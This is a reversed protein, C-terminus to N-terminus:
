GQRRPPRHEWRWVPGDDPDEIAGVFAFGNKELVRTSANPARLTHARILRVRSDAAAYAVLAAAAETAYGQGEFSPVVAYAIEVMGDADPPGKFSANGIVQNSARHVLGFGFLWPDSGSAARLIDLFAPSVDASALFDRLGPASPVGFSEAFSAPRDILTLLHEPAYPVLRLRATM